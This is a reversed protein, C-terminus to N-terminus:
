PVSTAPSPAGAQGLVAIAQFLSDIQAQPDCLARARAPGQAGLSSRLAADALLQQLADALAAVDAPRVLRGCSDDVIELPGGLATTVVPRGAALAEIFVIGFPEPGTNPQCYVDAARLLAAVDRREGLFFVRDALGLETVLRQLHRAYQAETTRQAGGAMWCRWPVQRPLRALARLHLEHGKWGELRSAQLVVVAEPPANLQRRLAAAAGPEGPDTNLEVPYYLCTGLVKPFLRSMEGQIYQSNFLTLALPNWLAWRDLWSRRSLCGHVWLIMPIHEARAAPGFVALPWSSHCILRDFHERRCLRRLQSRGRWVTWPRSIRVGGIMHVPAGLARLEATLRGEYCCAFHSEMEPQLRRRRALTVMLTEVGGFLNGGVVHLVKM